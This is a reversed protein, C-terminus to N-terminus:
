RFHDSRRAIAFDNDLPHEWDILNVTQNADGVDEKVMIGYRLLSYFDKNVDYLSNTQDGVVRDLEYFAREILESSYGQKSLFFRLFSLEVNANDARDHWDGLYDYQLNQQFLRIIRDQTKREIEGINEM